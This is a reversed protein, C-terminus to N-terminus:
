ILLSGLDRQVDEPLGTSLGSRLSEGTNRGEPELFLQYVNRTRLRAVKDVSPRYRPGVGKVVSQLCLRMPPSQKSLKMVPAWQYLDVVHYKTRM